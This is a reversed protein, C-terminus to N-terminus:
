GRVDLPKLLQNDAKLFLVGQQAAPGGYQLLLQSEKAVLDKAAAAFPEGLLLHLLANKKVFGLTCRFGLLRLPCNLNGSVSSGFPASSGERSIKRALVYYVVNGLPLLDATASLRKYAHPLFGCLFQVDDGHLELHDAVNPGLIDALFAFPQVAGMRHLNGRYGSLDMSLLM